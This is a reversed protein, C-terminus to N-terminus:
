GRYPGLRAPLSGVDGLVEGVPRRPTPPVPDGSRPPWGVRVLVQPCAADDLLEDQLLHRTRDVEVAQSLPVTLLGGATAHVLVAGLAEGARLRSATDDSSTCIVLLPSEVPETEAPADPLTGSPFRSPTPEAGSAPGRSLLSSDPIGAGDNRGTWRIIEDVYRPDERQALEAEALIQVLEHHARRSVVAM